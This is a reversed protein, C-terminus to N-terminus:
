EGPSLRRKAPEIEHREVVEKQTECPWHNHDTPEECESAKGARPVDISELRIHGFCNPMISGSAFCDLFKLDLKPLEPEM